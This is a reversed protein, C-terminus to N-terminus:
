GAIATAAFVCRTDGDISTVAAIRVHAIPGPGDAPALEYNHLHAQHTGASTTTRQTSDGPDVDGGTTATTNDLRAGHIRVMRVGSENVYRTTVSDAADSCTVTFNGVGPISLLKTEPEESNLALRARLLSAGAAPQGPDGKPGPPGADGQPGAPGPGGQQGKLAARAAPSIKQLTVARKKIQKTGVSNAPLVAAAYSVGGLAVLLAVCAV